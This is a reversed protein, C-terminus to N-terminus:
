VKQFYKRLANARSAPRRMSWMRSLGEKRAESTPPPTARSTRPQSFVLSWAGAQISNFVGSFVCTFCREARRHASGDRPFKHAANRFRLAGPVPGADQEFDGPKKASGTISIPRRAELM